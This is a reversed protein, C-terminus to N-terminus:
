DEEKIGRRMAFPKSKVIEKVLVSFKYNETKLVKSIGEVAPRDRYSLGRGLAYTLMKESLCRVFLGKKQSIITKLDESGTFKTGDAFEGSADIEQGADQTRYRGIADYNELAFGIPDM